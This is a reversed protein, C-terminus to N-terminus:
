SRGTATRRGDQRKSHGAAKLVVPIRRDDQPQESAQSTNLWVAVLHIGTCEAVNYLIVSVEITCTRKAYEVVTTFRQIITNNNKM